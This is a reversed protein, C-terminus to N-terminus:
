TVVTIGTCYKLKTPQPKLTLLFVTAYTHKEECNMRPRGHASIYQALYEIDLHRQLPSNLIFHYIELDHCICYNTCHM